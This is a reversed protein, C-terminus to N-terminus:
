DYESKKRKRRYYEAAGLAALTGVGAATPYHHAAQSIHHAVDSAFGAAHGATHGLGKVGKHLLHGASTVIDHHQNPDPVVKIGEALSLVHQAKTVTTM